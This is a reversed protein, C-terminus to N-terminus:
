KKNFIGFRRSAQRIFGGGNSETAASTTSLSTSPRSSLSPQTDEFINKNGNIQQSRSSADGHRELMTQYWHTAILRQEQILQDRHNTMARLEQQLKDNKVKMQVFDLKLKAEDGITTSGLAENTQIHLEVYDHLAQDKEKLTKTAMALEGKLREIEIQQESNRATSFTLDEEIKKLKTEADECMVRYSSLKAQLVEQTTKRQEDTEEQVSLMNTRKREINDLKAKLMANEKEIEELREEYLNTPNNNITELLSPPSDSYRERATSLMPSRELEELRRKLRNNDALMQHSNEVLESIRQELDDNIYQLNTSQVKFTEMDLLQERLKSCESAYNEIRKRLFEEEKSETKVESLRSQTAKARALEVELERYNQVIEISEDQLRNIRMSKEQIENEFARNQLQLKEVEKELISIQKESNLSLNDRKKHQEIIGLYSDCKYSLEDYNKHMQNIEDELHQKGEILDEIQKNLTLKEKEISEKENKHKEILHLILWRDDECVTPVDSNLISLKEAIKQLETENFVDNLQGMLMSNTGAAFIVTTILKVLERRDEQIAISEPKISWKSTGNLHRSLKLLFYDSLKSSVSAVAAIRSSSNNHDSYVISDHWKEDFFEIDFTSLFDALVTGNYLGGITVDDQHCNVRSFWTLIKKIFTEDDDM